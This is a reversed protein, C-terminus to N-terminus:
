WAQLCFLSTQLIRTHNQRLVIKKFGRDDKQILDNEFIKWGPTACSNPFAEEGCGM